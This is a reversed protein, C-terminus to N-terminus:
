SENVHTAEQEAKITHLEPSHLGHRCHDCTLAEAWAKVRISERDGPEAAVPM